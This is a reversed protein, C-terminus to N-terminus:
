SLRLEIQKLAELTKQINGRSIKTDRQILTILDEIDLGTKLFKDVTEFVSVVVSPKILKENNM